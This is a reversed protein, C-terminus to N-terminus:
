RLNLSADWAGAKFGWLLPYYTCVAVVAALPITVIWGVVIKRLTM